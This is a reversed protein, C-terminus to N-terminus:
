ALHAVLHRRQRVWGSEGDFNESDGV